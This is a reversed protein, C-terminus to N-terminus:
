LCWTQDVKCIMVGLIKGALLKCYIKKKMFFKFFFFGIWFSPPAARYPYWMTYLQFFRSPDWTDRPRNIRFVFRLGNSVDWFKENNHIRPICNHDFSDRFSDGSDSHRYLATHPLHHSVTTHHLRTCTYTTNKSHARSAALLRDSHHPKWALAM